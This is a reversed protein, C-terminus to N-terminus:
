EVVRRAADERWPVPKRLLFTESFLSFGGDFKLTDRVGGDLDSLAKPDPQGPADENPVVDRANLYRSATSRHIGVIRAADEILVGRDVLTYLKRLRATPTRGPM